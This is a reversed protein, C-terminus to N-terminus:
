NRIQVTTTFVERRVSDNATVVRDGLTYSTTNAYGPEATFARVLLWVRVANVDDWETPTTTTSSATNSVSDANRFQTTGDTAFRGFQLEMAEVGPAVLEPAGLAPGPGLAIRYLAPIQPNESPSYSYRNIYYVLTELPRDEVPVEAFVPPTAGLFVEAREYASRVYLRNAAVTTVPTLGGRRIVLIDGSQYTGAPLCTATFPNANNSGWIGQRVNVSFGAACDGSVTGLGAATPDPWTLGRFGAHNIERKLLQLAANGNSQLDSTRENSRSNASSTAVAGIFGAILFMGIALSIMLEILGM